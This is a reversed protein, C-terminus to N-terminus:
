KQIPGAQKYGRKWHTVHYLVRRPHPFIPAQELRTEAWEQAPTAQCTKKLTHKKEYRGQFRANKHRTTFGKM